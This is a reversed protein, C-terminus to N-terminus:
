SKEDTLKQACFSLAVLVGPIDLRWVCTALALACGGYSILKMGGDMEPPDGVGGGARVAGAPVAVLLALALLMTAGVRPPRRGGADRRM